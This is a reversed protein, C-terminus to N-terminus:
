VPPLTGKVATRRRLLDIMRQRQREQQARRVNLEWLRHIHTGNITVGDIRNAASLRMTDREPGVIIHFVQLNVGSWKAGTLNAFNLKKTLNYRDFDVSDVVVEVSMREKGYCAVLKNALSTMKATDDRVTLGLDYDGYTPWASSETEWGENYMALESVLGYNTYASGSPGVAVQFPREVRGWFYFSYGRYAVPLPNLFCIQGSSAYIAYTGTTGTTCRYLNSGDHYFMRGTYGLPSGYEVMLGYRWTRNQQSRARYLRWVWEYDTGVYNGADYDAQNWSGELSANWAKEMLADDAAGSPWNSHILNLGAPRVEVTQDRGQLIIKTYSESLDLSLADDVLDYSKGSEDVFHNVEGANIDVATSASLKRIALARTSPDIYWFCDGQWQLLIDLAEGFRTCNLEFEDLSETLTLIMEADYGAIWSSDLYTNTVDAGNSDHHVPIDSGGEPLGLAHELIDIIVQGVTWYNDFGYDPAEPDRAGEENYLYRASGNIKAYVENLLRWKIDYATYVVGERGIGQPDNVRLWGHFRKTGDLYVEVLNNNTLYSPSADHRVDERLRAEWAGPASQVLEVLTTSTRTVGGIDVQVTAM